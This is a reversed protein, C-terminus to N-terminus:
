KREKLRTLVTLVVSVSLVGSLLAFAFDFSSGFLGMSASRMFLESGAFAATLDFYRMAAAGVYVLAYPLLTVVAACFLVAPMSGLFYSAAAIILAAATYAALRAAATMIVYEGISGAWGLTGFTQISMVPAGIVDFFRDAYSIGVAIDAATFIVTLAAVSILLTLIKASFTGRRGRKASRRIPSLGGEFVWLRSSVLIVAALLYINIGRTLIREVPDSFFFWGRVGDREELEELYMAHGNLETLLPMEERMKRIDDYFKDFEAKSIDGMIFKKIVEQQKEDGIIEEGEKQRNSIYELKEEDLEGFVHDNIYAEYKKRDEAVDIGYFGFSDYVSVALLLLTVVTVAPTFLKSMEWGFMGSPYRRARAPKNKERRGSSVTGKPLLRRAQASFRDAEARATVASRRSGFAIIVVAAAAAFFIYIVAAVALADFYRGFILLESYRSLLNGAWIVSLPSVIGWEAGAALRDLLLNSLTLVAGAAYAATYSSTLASVLAVIFAFVAAGLCRVITQVAAFGAFSLLYPCYGYYLQVPASGDSGGFLVFCEFLVCLSIAAAAAVSVTMLAALKAASLKARGNKTARIMQQTGSSREFPFVTGAALVLFVCIFMSIGDSFNFYQGWGTAANYTLPIKLRSLLSSYIDSVHRARMCAPSDSAGFFEYRKVTDDATKVALEIKARVNAALQEAPMVSSMLEIDRIPEGDGDRYGLSAKDFMKEAAALQETYWADLKDEGGYEGPDDLGANYENNIKRMHELYDGYYATLDRFDEPSAEYDRLFDNVANIKVPDMRQTGEAFTTSVDYYVYGVCLLVTLAFAAWLYKIGSLKKLEYLFFKM